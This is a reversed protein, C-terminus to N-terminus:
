KEDKDATKTLKCEEVMLDDSVFKLVKEVDDVVTDIATLQIPPDTCRSASPIVSCVEQEAPFISSHKTM